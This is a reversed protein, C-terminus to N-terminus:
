LQIGHKAATEEFQETVYSPVVGEMERRMERLMAKVEELTYVKPIVGESGLILLTPVEGTAGSPSTLVMYVGQETLKACTAKEGFRDEHIGNADLPLGNDCMHCGPSKIRAFGEIKKVTNM